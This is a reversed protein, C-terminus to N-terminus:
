WQPAPPKPMAAFDYVQKWLVGNQGGGTGNIVYYLHTGAIVALPTKGYTNAFSNEEYYGSWGGDRSIIYSGITNDRDETLSIVGYGNRSLAVSPGSRTYGSTGSAYVKFPNTWTSTGYRQRSVYINNDTGTFALVIQNWPAPDNGTDVQAALAPADKSLAGPIVRPSTYTAAEGNYYTTWIADNSQSNWALMFSNNPLAAAGVPLTASTRTDNPIKTPDPLDGPLQYSSDLQVRHQYVHGETGTHFIRFNGRGGDDTWIVKPPTWTQAFTGAGAPLRYSPGNNLAIYIYDNSAGRWAHLINGREDRAEGPTSRSTIAGGGYTVPKWDSGEGPFGWVAASPGDAAVSAEGAMAPVAAGPVAASAAVLAVAALRFRMSTNRM